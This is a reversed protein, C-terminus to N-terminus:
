LVVPRVQGLVSVGSLVGPSVVCVRVGGPQLPPRAWGVDGQKAMKPRGSRPDHREVLECTAGLEGALLGGQLSGSALGSSGGVESAQSCRRWSRRAIRAVGFRRFRCCVSVQEPTSQRHGLGRRSAFRASRFLRPPSTARLSKGVGEPWGVASHSSRERGGPAGSVSQGWPHFLREGVSGRAVPRSGFPRSATPPEPLPVLGSYSPTSPTLGRPAM